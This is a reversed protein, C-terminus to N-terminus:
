MYLIFMFVLKSQSNFSLFSNQLNKLEACINSSGMIICEGRSTSHSGGIEPSHLFLSEGDSTHTLQLM